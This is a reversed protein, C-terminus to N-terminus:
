GFASVVIDLSSGNSEDLRTETDASISYGELRSERIVHGVMGEYPLLEYTDANEGRKM